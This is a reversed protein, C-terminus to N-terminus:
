YVSDNYRYRVMTIEPNMVDPYRMVYVECGKLALETDTAAGVLNTADTKNTDLQLKLAYSTNGATQIQEFCDMDKHALQEDADEALWHKDEATMYMKASFQIIGFFAMTIIALILFAVLTEVM